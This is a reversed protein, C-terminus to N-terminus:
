NKFACIEFTLFDNVDDDEAFINEWALSLNLTLSKQQFDWHTERSEHYSVLLIVTKAGMHYAVFRRRKVFHLVYPYYFRSQSELKQYMHSFSFLEFLVRSLVFVDATWQFCRKDAGHHRTLDTTHRKRKEWCCVAASHTWVGSSQYRIARILYDIAILAQFPSFCFIRTKM